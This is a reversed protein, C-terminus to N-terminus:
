ESQPATWSPYRYGASYGLPLVLNTAEQILHIRDNAKDRALIWAGDPSWRPGFDYRSGDSGLVRANSGDADMVTVDAAHFGWYDGTTALLRLGDPSWRPTHGAVITSDIAGTGLDLIAIIDNGSGLARVYAMRTGDPSVSPNVENRGSMRELGPVIECGSGDTACRQVTGSHHGMLSSYIWADGPGYEGWLESDPGAEGSVRTINGDLDVRYLAQGAVFGYEEHFVFETGQSSWSIGAPNYYSGAPVITALASGDLDFVRIGGDYGAAIRGEPVVSLFAEAALEGVAASLTVRGIGLAEVTSGSVSAQSSTTSLEISAASPNGFRDEVEGTVTYTAGAYVATDAPLLRLLSPAGPLITYRATDEALVSAVRVRAEAPGAVRGAYVAVGVRGQGDTTAELFSRREPGFELLSSSASVEVRAGPLVAGTEDRVEVVLWALESQITDTASAGSIMHLGPGLDPDSPDGCANVGVLVCSAVLLPIARSM